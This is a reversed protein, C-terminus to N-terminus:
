GHIIEKWKMKAKLNFLRMYFLAEEENEAKEAKRALELIKGAPMISILAYIDIEETSNSIKNKKFIGM